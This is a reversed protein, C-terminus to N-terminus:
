HVSIGRLNRLSNKDGLGKHWVRIKPEIACLRDELDLLFEGRQEASMEVLLMVTVSITGDSHCESLDTINVFGKFDDPIEPLSLMKSHVELPHHLSTLLRNLM